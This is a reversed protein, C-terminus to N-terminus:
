LTGECSKDGEVNGPFFDGKGDGRKEEGGLTMTDQGFEDFVMNGRIMGKVGVRKPIERSRVMRWM